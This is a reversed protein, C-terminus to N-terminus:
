ENNGSRIQELIADWEEQTTEHGKLINSAKYEDNEPYFEITNGFTDSRYSNEPVREFDSDTHLKSYRMKDELYAEYRPKYWFYENENYFQNSKFDESDLYITLVAELYTCGYKRMVDYIRKDYFIRAYNKKGKIYEYIVERTKDNSFKLALSVWYAYGNLPIGTSGTEIELDHLIQMSLSTTNWHWELKFHKRAKKTEKNDIEMMEKLYDKTKAENECNYEVHKM